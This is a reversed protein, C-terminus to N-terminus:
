QRSRKTLSRRTPKSCTNNTQVEFNYKVEHKSTKNLLCTYARPIHWLHMCIPGIQTNKQTSLLHRKLNEIRDPHRYSNVTQQGCSIFIGACFGCAQTKITCHTTLDSCYNEVDVNLGRSDVKCPTEIFRLTQSAKGDRGNHLLKSVVFTKEQFIWKTNWGM